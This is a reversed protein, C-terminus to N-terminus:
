KTYQLSLNDQVAKPSVLSFRNNFVLYYTGADPPLSANLTGQTVKQSNYIPTVPHRNQWNVFDDDNMLWVEIDNRAGGSATFRGQMKVNTAGAPVTFKYSKEGLRPITFAPDISSTYVRVQGAQVNAQQCASLFLMLCLCVFVTWKM